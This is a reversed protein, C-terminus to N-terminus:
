LGAAPKGRGGDAGLGIRDFLSLLAWGNELWDLPAVCGEPLRDGPRDDECPDHSSEDPEAPPLVLAAIAPPARHLLAPMGGALTLALIAAGSVALFRLM